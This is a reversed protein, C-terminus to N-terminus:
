GVCECAEPTVLPHTGCRDRRFANLAARTRLAIGGVRLSGCRVSLGAFPSRVVGVERGVVARQVLLLLAAAVALTRVVALLLVGSSAELAPSAGCASALAAAPLVCRAVAVLPVLRAAAILAVLAAVAAFLLVTVVVLLRALLVAAVPLAVLTVLLPTCAAAAVVATVVAAFAAGPLVAVCRVFGVLSVVVVACLLAGGRCVALALSRALIAFPGRVVPAALLAASAEGRLPAAFPAGIRTEVRRLPAALNAEVAEDRLRAEARAALGVVVDLRAHDRDVPLHDRLQPALHLRRVVHAEVALAYLALLLDVEHEVLGLSIHGRHLVGVGVLRHHLQDLSGARLADIRNAPEVLVAHSQQEEGVVAVQGLLEGVGGVALLLNVLHREVLGERTGVHIGDGLADRELVAFDIGIFDGVYRLVLLLDADFDVRPAVADHPADELMQAIRHQLEVPDVVGTQRLLVELASLPAEERALLNLAELRSLVFLAGRALRQRVVSAADTRGGNKIKWRRVGATGADEGGGPGASGGWM